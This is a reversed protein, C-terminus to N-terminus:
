YDAVLATLVALTTGGSAVTVTVVKYNNDGNWGTVITPAPNFGFGSPPTCLAPGPGPNCPDGFAAFGQLRRQGLILEMREQALHMAQTMQGPVPTGRVSATFSATLGVALISAVVIFVVLEVLTVGTQHASSLNSKHKM